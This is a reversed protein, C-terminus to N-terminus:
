LQKPIYTDTYITQVVNFTLGFKVLNNDSIPLIATALFRADSYLKSM